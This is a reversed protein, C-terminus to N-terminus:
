AAGKDFEEVMPRPGKQERGRMRRGDGGGADGGDIDELLLRLDDFAQPLVRTEELGPKLRQPEAGPRAFAQDRGDDDALAGEGHLQGIRQEGFPHKRLSDRKRRDRAVFRAHSGDHCGCMGPVLQLKGKVDKGGNAPIQAYDLGVSIRKWAAASAADSATVHPGDDRGGKAEALSASACLASAAPPGTRGLAEALAAAIAEGCSAVPSPMRANRRRRSRTTRCPSTAAYSFRSVFDASRPRAASKTSASSIGPTVRTTM